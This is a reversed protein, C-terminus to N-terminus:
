NRSLFCSSFYSLPIISIMKHYIM